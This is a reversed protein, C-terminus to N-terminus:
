HQLVSRVPTYVQSSNADAGTKTALPSVTIRDIRALKGAMAALQGDAQQVATRSERRDAEMTATLAEMSLRITERTLGSERTAAEMSLRITERFLGSERTAAEMSLRVMEKLQGIERVTAETSAVTSLRVTERFLNNERAAAQRDEQRARREAWRRATAERGAERRALRAEAAVADSFAKSEERMATVALKSEERIAAVAKDCNMSADKRAWYMVLVAFFMVFLAFAYPNLQCGDIFVSNSLLTEM